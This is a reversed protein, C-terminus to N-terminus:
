GRKGGNAYLSKDIKVFDSETSSPTVPIPKSWKVRFRKETTSEHRIEGDSDIIELAAGYLREARTLLLGHIAPHELVVDAYMQTEIEPRKPLQPVDKQLPACRLEGAVVPSGLEDLKIGAANAASSDLGRATPAAFKSIPANIKEAEPATAVSKSPIPLDDDGHTFFAPPKVKAEKPAPTKSLLGFGSGEDSEDPLDIPTPATNRLGSGRSDIRAASPPEIKKVAPAANAAGSIGFISDIKASTAPAQDALMKALKESIGARAKQETDKRVEAMLLIQETMRAQCIDQRTALMESYYSRVTSPQLNIGSDILLKTIQDWSCGKNRLNFMYPMLAEFAKRQSQEKPLLLQEAALWIPEIEALNVRQIAKTRSQTQQSTAM